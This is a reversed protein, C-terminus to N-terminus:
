VESVKGKEGGRVVMGAERMGWLSWAAKVGEEGGEEEGGFAAGLAAKMMGMRKREGKGRVEREMKESQGRAAVLVEDPVGALRACEIGFSATALGPSLIFLFTISAASPNSPLPTTRYGM